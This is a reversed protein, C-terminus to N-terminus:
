RRSWTQSSSHTLDQWASWRWQIGRLPKASRPPTVSSSEVPATFWGPRGSFTRCTCWPEELRHSNFVEGCRCKMYISCPKGPEWENPPLRKGADSLAYKRDTWAEQDRWEQFDAETRNPLYERWAAEFAARAAEFSAATGARDDGPNSGPYFGCIWQWPDASPPVGSREIILGVRV